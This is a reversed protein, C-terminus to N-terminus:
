LVIIDPPNGWSEFDPSTLINFPERTGGLEGSYKSFVVKEIRYHRILYSCLLCPEVNTYLTSGSLDHSNEIANLIAVTEAHRTIDKLQRSKEVGEGIVVGEKVIVCGVPSEGNDLALQALKYCHKLFERHNEM